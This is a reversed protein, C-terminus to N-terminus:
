KKVHEHSFLHEMCYEYNGDCKSCFRFELTEDDQETRGCVACKHRTVVTAKKVKKRYNARRRYEKPSMRTYNRTMFFFILFNALAVLIAIGYMFAGAAFSQIVEFAIIAGYIYGLYKIKIPIIFSLLIQMNPFTAAYALFLSRNIYSLGMVYFDGLHFLYLILAAVINFLIGSVYYLNFRFSGWVSELSKGIMYYFYLEILLFFGSIGDTISRPEIIFTVLRWVQGQFVKSMELGLYQYYFAPSVTGIFAGLLYIIIVYYMLNPVAFKGFKRELKYLFKM